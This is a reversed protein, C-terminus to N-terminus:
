EAIEVNALDVVVAAGQGIFDLNLVVTVQNAVQTVTGSFGTLPGRVIRVNRGPCLKSAGLVLTGSELAALIDNLQQAFTIQDFVTLVNATYECGTVWRCVTPEGKFFVYGPFLPKEFEVKKRGYVKKSKICPLSVEFGEQECYWALKKECRPRTHAVYWMVETAVEAVVGLENM